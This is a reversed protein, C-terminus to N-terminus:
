DRKNQQKIQEIRKNSEEFKKNIEDILYVREQYSIDLVDTYSMHLNDSIFWCEKLIERYRKPGYAKGDKSIQPDLFSPGSAFFPILNKM